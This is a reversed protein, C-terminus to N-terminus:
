RRYETSQVRNETKRLVRAINRKYPPRIIGKETIIATILEPPTVDFAPNWVAAKKPAIQKGFVNRVEEPNRKEIPIDKGKDLSLDFTSGPAAVYFPIKHYNCIVALNYTGIKNAVYGSRTIRDAGLIVKNIGRQKILFSAMNDTVLIVEIKRSLLEWTTLRAGQFLPRTESAYIKLGPYKKYAKYIVSLATGNGSTALFGTNCHTLIADKKKILGVGNKGINECLKVDEYHITKAEKEILKKIEAVPRNKNERTIDEIRNLAWSLNVATPRSEKLIRSNKLIQKLFRKTNKSKFNRISIYLSYAAFVGILPAGRVMLKKIADYAQRLDGIEKYIVRQPLKTQDLIILRNRKFSLSFHKMM